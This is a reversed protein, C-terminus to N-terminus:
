AVKVQPDGSIIHLDRQPYPISIGEKDFTEKIEQLLDSRVGWYDPTNVWPRVALDISSEGLELVMITPAPDALILTHKSIIDEIIQKAKGINDDYGIGIVLDIRRTTRKTLNIISGGYIHSNPIIIEQNDGTRMITNFIQIKEVTGTSGGANIVDGLSFPKFMILMVGSSFNSLSDKLALGVALGAAAFVAMISTTDFGLQELAAIVIFVTLVANIISGAFKRLAEDVKARGMLNVVSKVIIKAVWRGIVYILIATTINIGWPIVYQNIIDANSNFLKDM